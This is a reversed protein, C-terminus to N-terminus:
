ATRHGCACADAAREAAAGCPNDTRRRPSMRNRLLVGPLCLVTSHSRHAYLFETDSLLFNFIGLASIEKAWSQIISLKRPLDLIRERPFGDRLRDMLLCFVRESDTEGLSFHFRPEFRPDKLIGSIEGNHAFAHTYGYLERVFPHTNAYSLAKPASAQRIHSLVIEGSFDHTEIFDLCAGDCAPAAEKIVRFDRGEHFAVGWGDGHPGTKGGREGFVKLSFTVNTPLRSSIGFLQCM